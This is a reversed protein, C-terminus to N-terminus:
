ENDEDDIKESDNGLLLTLEELSYKAKYPNRYGETKAIGLEEWKQWLKSISQTSIPVHKEIETTTNKGDTLQYILIEDKNKFLHTLRKECESRALVKLTQSIEKQTQNLMKLEYILSNILDENEM